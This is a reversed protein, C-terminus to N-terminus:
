RDTADRRTHRGVAFFSRKAVETALVYTSLLTVLAALMSVTPTTFGLADGLPTFPLALTAAGVVASSALLARGPRSRHFPRRTRLVLMVLLETGISMLFWGTRFVKADADFVVRLVAFTLYDFVSSLLGFVIMFTRIFDINWKTPRDVLEDDVDDTAITTGPIDSLFNLLLIQRPLLPVFPLIVASGAMSIMNGFNASTTVFVYKLTNAFTQRGRQVGDLLVRLDKTLLVIAASEKAVDVASDVSIGVDAARLAMADNIGDGLFGTSHGTRSLSRIIRLKQAPEVEAFVRVAAIERDLAADDLQEVRAGTMLSETPLGVLSAVHTAVHRNDGTLMRVTIGSRDLEEVTAGVDSKVRDAFTIFGDLTLGVEDTRSASTTGPPLERSAVALVRSGDSSLATFLQELDDLHGSIPAITGDSRRQETCVATISRFSGKTVLVSRDEFRVAVSLRQREFDYPVEGVASGPDEPEPVSALIAVDIPNPFASQHHANTWALRAVADSPRGQTDLAHALTVTGVTLTGTKDVCLNDISGLDEISSLRKVVVQERAMARAGRSLTITVIAPLLQPTIGVALALSFLLSELIPRDLVVNVVFVGTILAVGVKMVLLSFSRLGREFTTPPEAEDLAAGITGLVTANGTTLVVAVGQGSVVHSGFFLGHRRRSLAPDPDTGPSKHVPYSEGTLTSENVTLGDSELLRCDGPVLDGSGLVVIDGPVVDTIAVSTAAGDRRVDANVGVSSRLSRIADVASREQLFGLTASAVVIVIIISADITDGLIMSLMTAVILLLMIPNAFQRALLARSTRHRDDGLSNPGVAHLRRRAEMM